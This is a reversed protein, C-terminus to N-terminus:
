NMPATAQLRRQEWTLLIAHSAEGPYDWRAAIMGGPLRKEASIDEKTVDVDPQGVAAAAAVVKPPEQEDDCFWDEHGTPEDQDPSIAVRSASDIGEDDSVDAGFFTEEDSHLADFIM